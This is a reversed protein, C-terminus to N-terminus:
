STRERNASRPMLGFIRATTSLISVMLIITCDSPPIAMTGRAQASFSTVKPSNFASEIAGARLTTKLRNRRRSGIDRRLSAANCLNRSISFAYANGIYKQSRIKRHSCRYEAKSVVSLSSGNQGACSSTSSAPMPQREGKPRKLNARAHGTRRSSCVKANADIGAASEGIDNRDIDDRAGRLHRLDRARGRIRRDAQQAADVLDQRSGSRGGVADDAEGVAGRNGGVRQQLALDIRQPQDDVCAEPVDEFDRPLRHRLAIAIGIEPHLRVPDHWQLEDALDAAPQVKAAVLQPREILRAHAVGRSIKAVLANAGDANTEQMGIGVVRM